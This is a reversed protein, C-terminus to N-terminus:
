GQGAAIVTVKPLQGTLITVTMAHKDTAVQQINDKKRLVTKIGKTQIIQIVTVAMVFQFAVSKYGVLSSVVLLRCNFVFRHCTKM